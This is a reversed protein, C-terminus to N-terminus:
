ARPHASEYVTRLRDQTVHTYVQTTSLDAHGLLEQVTRLDAGGELLHTAYAHRLAHPHLNRGDALPRAELIRRVDRPGTAGGRRNLFVTDPSRDTAFAPRGNRLWAVVAAAAPEGIPVRRTKAGKGLVTVLREDLDVDLVRLGCAESVRLGAGYLVELIAHDRLAIPDDDPAEVDVVRAAENPRPVRPLRAHGPPAHLARGPDVDIAGRRHLWRTYARLSSAKRAISRRALARNQLSALYRRMLTRDVASPGEVGGRECWAVFQTVDRTYADRTAPSRGTLSTVFHEVAWAM